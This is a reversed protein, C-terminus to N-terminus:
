PLEKLLEIVISSNAIPYISGSANPDLLIASTCTNQVTLMQGVLVEVIVQATAHTTDDNPSQTFGSEVSGTVFLGDLFFGMSWSPVPDPIPPSIRGQVTWSMSYIGHKLFKIQGTSNKLSVDFDSSVQNQSDYMVTSSPNGAPSLTQSTISYVNCYASACDCKCQDATCVGDKGPIGQDGKPGQMGEQGPIGQVGAVGQVGQAGQLGQPGRPGAECCECKKYKYYDSESMDKCMYIGVKENLM